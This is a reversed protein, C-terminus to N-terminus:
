GFYHLPNRKVGQGIYIHTKSGSSLSDYPYIDIHVKSGVQYYIMATQINVNSRELIAIRYLKIMRYVYQKNESINSYMVHIM